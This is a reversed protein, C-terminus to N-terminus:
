HERGRKKKNEKKEGYWIHHSEGVVGNSRNRSGRDSRCDSQIAVM